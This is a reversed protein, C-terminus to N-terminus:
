KIATVIVVCDFDIGLRALVPRATEMHGSTAIAWPIQADTLYILLERAGPLPQVPRPTFTGCANSGSM